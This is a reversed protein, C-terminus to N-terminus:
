LITEVAQKVPRNQCKRPVTQVRDRCAHTYTHITKVGSSSIIANGGRKWEKVAVFSLDAELDFNLHARATMCKGVTESHLRVVMASWDSHKSNAVAKNKAKQQEKLAESTKASYDNKKRRIWSYKSVGVTTVHALREDADTQTHSETQKNTQKDARYSL